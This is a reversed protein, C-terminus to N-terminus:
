RFVVGAVGLKFLRLLLLTGTLFSKAEQDLSDLVIGNKHKIGLAV